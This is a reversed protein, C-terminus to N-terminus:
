VASGERGVALFQSRDVTEVCMFRTMERSNELVKERVASYLRAGDVDSTRAMSAAAMMLPIM